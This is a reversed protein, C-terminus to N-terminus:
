QLCRSLVLHFQLFFSSGHIVDCVGHGYKSNRTEPTQMQMLTECITEHIFSCLVTKNVKKKIFSWKVLGSYVEQRPSSFWSNSVNSGNEDEVSEQKDKVGVCKACWQFNLGGLGQALCWPLNWSKERETPRSSLSDRASGAHVALPHTLTWSAVHYPASIQDWSAM